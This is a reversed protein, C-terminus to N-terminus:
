LPVNCPPIIIDSVSDEIIALSMCSPHWCLNVLASGWLSVERGAEIYLHRSYHPRLKVAGVGKKQLNVSCSIEHYAHRRVIFVIGHHMRHKIPQVSPCYHIVPQFKRRQM